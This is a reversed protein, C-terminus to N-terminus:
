DDYLVIGETETFVVKPDRLFDDIAGILDNESDTGAWIQYYERLFKDTNRYEILIERIEQLTSQRSNYLDKLDCIGFTRWIRTPSLSFLQYYFSPSKWIILIEFRAPNPYQLTRFIIM